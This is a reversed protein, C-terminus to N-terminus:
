RRKCFDINLVCESQEPKEPKAADRRILYDDLAEHDSGWRKGFYYVKGEIRKFWYGANHGKLPCEPCPKERHNQNM